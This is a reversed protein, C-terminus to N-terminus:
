PKLAQFEKKSHCNNLESEELSLTVGSISFSAYVDGIEDYLINNKDIYVQNGNKKYPYKYITLTGQPDYSNITLISEEFYYEDCYEKECDYYNTEYYGQDCFKINEVLLWKTGEFQVASDPTVCSNLTLFFGVVLVRILIKNM